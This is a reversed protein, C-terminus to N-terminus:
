TTKWGWFNKDMNKLALFIVWVGTDISLFSYGGGFFSRQSLLYPKNFSPAYRFRKGYKFIKYIHTFFIKHKCYFKYCNELGLNPQLMYTISIPDILFRLVTEYTCCFIYCIELRLNPQLMYTISIPDILFRLVPEYKCYFKYYNELGLNPQLM